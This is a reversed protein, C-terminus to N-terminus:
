WWWHMSIWLIISTYYYYFFSTLIYYYGDNTIKVSITADIFVYSFVFIIYLKPFQFSLFRTQAPLGTLTELILKWGKIGTYCPVWFHISMRSIQNLRLRLYVQFRRRRRSTRPMYMSTRVDQKQVQFPFPFTAVLSFHHTKEVTQTLTTLNRNYQM